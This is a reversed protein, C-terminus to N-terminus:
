IKIQRGKHERQWQPGDVARVATVTRKPRTRHEGVDAINKAASEEGRAKVM